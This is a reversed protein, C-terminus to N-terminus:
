AEGPHDAHKDGHDHEPELLALVKPAAKGTLKTRVESVTQVGDPEDTLVFTERLKAAAAPDITSKSSTCGIALVLAPAVLAVVSRVSSDMKGRSKGERLFQLAGHPRCM